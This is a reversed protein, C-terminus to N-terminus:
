HVPKPNEKVNEILWEFDSGDMMEYGSNIGWTDLAQRRLQKSKFNNWNKIIWLYREHNNM